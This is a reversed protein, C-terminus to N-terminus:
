EFVGNMDNIDCQCECKIPTVAASSHHCRDFIFMIRFLYCTNHYNRFFISFSRISSTPQTVGALDVAIPNNFGSPLAQRFLPQFWKTNTPCPKRSQVFGGVVIGFLLGVSGDNSETARLQLMTSLMYKMTNKLSTLRRVCPKSTTICSSSNYWWIHRHYGDVYAFKNM